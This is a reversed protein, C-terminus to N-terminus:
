AVPSLLAPPARAPLGDASGPHALLYGQLADCGLRHLVELQHFYEVGEAVVGLRLAQDLRDLVLGRNPLGTLPDHTTPGGDTHRRQCM